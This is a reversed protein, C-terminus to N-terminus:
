WLLSLLWGLLLSLLASAIYWKWRREGREVLYFTSAVLFVYSVLSPMEGFLDLYLFILPIFALLISLLRIFSGLSM